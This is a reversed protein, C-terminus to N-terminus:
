HIMFNQPKFKKMTKNNHGHWSTIVTNSPPEKKVSRESNNTNNHHLMDSLQFFNKNKLFHDLKKNSIGKIM